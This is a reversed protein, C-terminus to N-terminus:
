KWAAAWATRLAVVGDVNPFNNKLFEEEFFEGTKHVVTASCNVTSLIGIYNRTGVQGDERVIGQFTAQKEPPLVEVPLYDRGFAYDREFERFDMNHSHVYAGAPIDSAAFGICVNYKMIPEGAKIARAAIKHGAPM